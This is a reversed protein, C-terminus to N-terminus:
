ENIDGRLIYKYTSNRFNFVLNIKEANMIEKDVEIYYYQNEKTPVIENFDAKEEYTQGNYTYEISGYTEILSPLTKIKNVVTKYEINGDIKLVIKEKNRTSSAKVIEKFDYCENTTVCSNYTIEYKDKIEYNNITIKYNNFDTEITNTLEYKQETKEQEDLNKPNLVVDISKTITKGRKYEIKDIYKFYMKSKIDSKPIQYTLTYYTIDTTLNQNEYPNGLDIIKKKYNNTPNYRKGNVSLVTRATQLTESSRSKAGIKLVVLAYEDSIKENNYDTTLVYTDSIGLTYTGVNFFENESYKKNYKNISIYLATCILAILLGGIINIIFKNEQYYYKANRLVRKINRIIENKEFEVAVEIEESDEESIDLSQLDKVFDFKKIDFGTARVLYLIMSITQIMRSINTIDRIALTTRAEVLVKELNSIVGHSIIYVVLVSIYLLINIIYYMYPKEKKIMIVIILINILIIAIILIYLLPSYLEGTLNTGIVNANSRAFEKLFSYILATRYLLIASITFLIFHLLKFNKIFFAYPKKLIM